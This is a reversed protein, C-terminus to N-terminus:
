KTLRILERLSGVVEFRGSAHAPKGHRDILVARIGARQAGVIDEDYLDGVHVTEAPKANMAELAREFIRVDPKRAGVEASIVYEEVYDDLGLETAIRRLRADWNSVVAVRVRARQLARLAHLSDGYLRWVEATGFLAYLRGFWAEFDLAKLAPLAEVLHELLTHWMARDQAESAAGNAPNEAYARTFATWIPPWARAIQAATVRAGMRRAERSYIAAVSPQAHLLTHGADFFVTRIM